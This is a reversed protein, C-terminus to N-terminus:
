QNKFAPKIDNVKWLTDERNGQRKEIYYDKTIKIVQHRVGNLHFQIFASDLASKPNTNFSYYACDSVWRLKSITTDTPFVSSISYELSDTRIITIAIKKWHGMSSHNYLHLTFVGNKLESCNDNSPKSSACGAILFPLVLINLPFCKM